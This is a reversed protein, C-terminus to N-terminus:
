GLCLSPKTEDLPLNMRLRLSLHRTDASASAVKFGEGVLYNVYMRNYMFAFVIGSLGFTALGALVMIVAGLWHGRFLAPFFTFFLTTWSFGVPATKMRGSQPHHFNITAYAM